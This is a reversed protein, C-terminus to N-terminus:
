FTLFNQIKKTKNAHMETLSAMQFNQRHDILDYLSKELRRYDLLM